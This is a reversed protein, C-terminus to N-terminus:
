KEHKIKNIMKLTYASELFSTMFKKRKTFYDIQRKFMLIKENKFKIRKENNGDIINIYNKQLNAEFAFNSFNIILKREVLKSNFDLIVNIISSNKSRLIIDAREEVDLGLTRSNSLISSMIKYRGFLYLILDMEHSLELLVGGGKKHIASVSKKYNIHTRWNPLYSKSVVQAGLFKGNNKNLILKKLKKILNNHRFVYGIYLKKIFKNDKNLKKIKNYDNSIPKELFFKKCNNKFYDLNFIRESSPGSIIAFEFKIKKAQILNIKKLFNNKKFHKSIIFFNFNKKNRLCSIHKLSISSYGIILVNKKM